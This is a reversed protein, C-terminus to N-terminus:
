QETGLAIGPLPDPRTFHIFKFPHINLANVYWGKIDHLDIVNIAPIHSLPIIIKADLLLQEAKALYELRKKRNEEASAKKLLNEYDISQWGTDNLNSDPRYLELFALPDAFDGIWSLVAVHYTDTKLRDDYQEFPVATIETKIGIKGWAEKLLEAQKAYLATEPLLVKIPEAIHAKPVKTLLKEAKSVDQEEIGSVSPYGILPFVLTKAPILYNERLQTYPIAALLAERLTQNNCPLANTKFYFYETAFMPTIRITYPVAVKELNVSGCLWHVTGQNFAETMKDADSDLLISIRELQVSEADWYSPNKVLTIKENNMDEIKFPGSAIPKFVGGHYAVISKQASASVADYQSHHVASFAHHCLIHALHGTPHVLSMRLSTESEAYLGIHSTDTTKGSRYEYAGKVCDLLSAYPTQLKPNLLNIFSDCFVQATIPDGNEFTLNDRLTFTWTLGDASVKWEKALGALPQLTYPDYVCLGEYVGTLIQAEHAYYAAHPHLNPIEAVISVIFEKQPSPVDQQITPEASLIHAFICLLLFLFRKEKHM